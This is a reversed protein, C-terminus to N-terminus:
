TRFKLPLAYNSSTVVIAPKKGGARPVRLIALVRM